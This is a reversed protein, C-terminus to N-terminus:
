GTASGNKELKHRYIGYEILHAMARVAEDPYTFVPLDYQERLTATIRDKIDLLNIHAIPVNFKKPYKKVRQMVAYFLTNFDEMRAKVDPRNMLETGYPGYRFYDESYAGYCVIADVEGSKFIPYPVIDFFTSPNIVYTFDIPNRFGGTPPLHRKLKEQLELSFPPITLGLRSALDAVEAGAGGSDTIIGLRRGKPLVGQPVYHSFLMATLLFERMCSVRRIGTQSFVAEFIADNGAMSGTHSSVAKAGGATGGLYIAIIPKKPTIEKVLELFRAGRKVEEIYLCIVQTTPDDRFYELCDCIDINAENGVSITKNLNLGLEVAPLFVHCAFTGSQTAISINGQKMPYHTWTTNLFRETHTPDLHSNFVGICNPGVFRIGYKKAIQKVNAEGATDGVERFGATVLIVRDVGKQGLEEMVQAVARTPLVLFALDPVVPVEAIIRYAKLGLVTDLRPHIPYLNEKPYGQDILNLLQITGMTQLFDNNAGYFAISKPHLIKHLPHSEYSQSTVIVSFTVHPIFKLNKGM